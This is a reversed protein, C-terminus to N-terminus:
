KIKNKNEEKLLFFHKFLHTFAHKVHCFFIRSSIHYIIYYNIEDSFFVWVYIKKNEIIALCDILDRHLLIEVKMAMM